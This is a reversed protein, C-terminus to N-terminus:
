FISLYPCVFIDMHVYEMLWCCVMANSKAESRTVVTKSINTGHTRDYVGAMDLFCQLVRRKKAKKSIRVGKLLGPGDRFVRFVWLTPVLESLIRLM